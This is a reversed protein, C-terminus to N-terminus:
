TGSLLLQTERSDPFRRRLTAAFANERVRDGALRAIRVGLLLDDPGADGAQELLRDHYFSALKVNGQRLYLASLARLAPVFAPQGNLAALFHGSAEEPREGAQSCYGMNLRVLHPSAYRADALSRKLLTMGEDVRGKGCLFRGFNNNAEGSQPALELAKRYASEAAADREQQSLAHARALWAPVFGADLAVARDAAELAQAHQGSKAYEFALQVHLSALEHPVVSAFATAALLPLILSSWVQWKKM